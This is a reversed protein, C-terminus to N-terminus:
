DMIIKILKKLVNSSPKRFTGMEIMKLQEEKWKYPATVSDLWKIEKTIRASSVQLLDSRLKNYNKEATEEALNPLYERNLGLDTIIGAEQLMKYYKKCSNRSTNTLRAIECWNDPIEKLLHLAIAFGRVNVPLDGRNIFDYYVGKFYGEYTTPKYYTHYFQQGAPKFHISRIFGLDELEKMGAAVQARTLDQHDYGHTRCYVSQCYDKGQLMIVKAYLYLAKLSVKGLLSDPIKVFSKIEM